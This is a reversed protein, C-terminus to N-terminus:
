VILFNSVKQTLACYEPAPLGLFFELPQKTIRCLLLACFDSDTSPLPSYNGMAAFEKKVASIDSGKLNSLDFDITDYTKGEFEYPTAFMHKM